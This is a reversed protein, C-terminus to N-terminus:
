IGNMNWSPQKYVKLVFISIYIYIYMSFDDVVFLYYILNITDILLFGWLKKLKCLLKGEHAKGCIRAREKLFTCVKLLTLTKKPCFIRQFNRFGFGLYEIPIPM